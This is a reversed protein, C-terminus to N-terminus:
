TPALKQLSILYPQVLNCAEADGDACSFWVPFISNLLAVIQHVKGDWSTHKLESACVHYYRLFRSDELVACALALTPEFPTNALNGAQLEALARADLKAHQLLDACHNLKTAMPRESFEIFHAERKAGFESSQMSCRALDADGNYFSLLQLLFIFLFIALAARQIATGEEM